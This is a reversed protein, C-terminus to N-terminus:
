AQTDKCKPVYSLFKLNNQESTFNINKKISYWVMLNEKIVGLNQNVM